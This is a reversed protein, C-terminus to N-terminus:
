IWTAPIPFAPFILRSQNKKSVLAINKTEIIKYVDTIAESRNPLRMSSPRM